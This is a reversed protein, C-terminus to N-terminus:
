KLEPGVGVRIIKVGEQDPIYRHPDIVISGKPFQLDKFCSHKVAVLYIRPYDGKFATAFAVSLEDDIFPDYLYHPIHKKNLLASCLLAPSGDILASDAKFAKGLIVVPLPYGCYGSNRYELVFDVLWQTQQERAQVVAEFLNPRLGLKNALYSMAISDRPHCNGGDVMGGKTYAPSHLRRTAMSLADTVEDINCGPTKHAIEMLCNAYTIKTSIYLNYAVKVLEASEYSMPMSKDRKYIDHYFGRILDSGADDGGVIVFEPNMFDYMVMGMAVFYPTYVINCKNKLIPLIHKRVTGPLVTSIIAVTQNPTVLGELNHCTRILATYDFDERHDPVPTSGGFEPKHPTQVAVFIIQANDVAERLTPAFKLTSADFHAQFNDELTPGLEKHEYKRKKLLAPNQDYATVEHFRSMAVAVPLGLKGVGIFAAQM